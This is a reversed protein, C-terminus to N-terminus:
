AGPLRNVQMWFDFISGVAKKLGAYDMPKQVYANAGLRYCTNLDRPHDSTTFVVVPINRLDPAAKLAVLVERGDTGPMNLDLLILGPQSCNAADPVTLASLAEAGNTCRCVRVPQGDAAATLARTTAEFDDDSDEVIFISRFQPTNM